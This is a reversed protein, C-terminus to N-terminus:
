FPSSNVKANIPCSIYFSYENVNILDWAQRREGKTKGYNFFPHFARMRVGEQENAERVFIRLPKLFHKSTGRKHDIREVFALEFWKIIRQLIL